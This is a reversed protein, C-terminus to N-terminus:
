SESRRHRGPQQVRLAVPSLGSSIQFAADFSAAADPLIGRQELEWTLVAYANQPTTHSAKTFAASTAERVMVALDTDAEQDCAVNRRHRGPGIDVPWTGSRQSKLDSRDCPDEVPRTPKTM